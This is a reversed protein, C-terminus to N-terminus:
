QGTQRFIQLGARALFHPLERVFGRSQEQVETPLEEWPLLYPHAKKQPDGAELTWGEQQRETVWQEHEMRAMHNIEEAAFHFAHADWDRLPELGCGITRLRIALHDAQRRYSEQENRPLDEWPVIDRPGVHVSEHRERYHLHGEHIARAIMENTGGLILEPTCTRDLLGFGHLNEFGDGSRSVGHLLKALGAEQETRVVIPIKTDRLRQQLALAASLGLSDDDLCIYVQTVRTQGEEDFLFEAEQFEPWRIDIQCANVQCSKELQPYRLCLSRVKWGAERDVVTLQIREGTETYRLHWDRGIHVILNEGMRGLGVVLIQPPSAEGEGFAPFQNLLARAGSDFVNVFRWRVADLRGMTIEKDQLLDCLLPDVIHLVCTLPNKSRNGILTSARVAIEANDGDDGSVAILHRARHLGAKTLLEDSTADGLLVIAGLDKSAEIRENDEDNEIIVVPMGLALFAQTLLYGKRGLGCIILHDRIRRIRIFQFQEFFIVALAQVATYATVTPALFRALELVWGKPGPVSGSELTFLQLTLYLRDLVPRTEGKAAYYQSFGWYGLLFAALWLTGLFAWRNSKWRELIQKRWLSTLRHRWYTKKRSGLM